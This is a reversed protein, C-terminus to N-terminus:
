CTNGNLFQGSACVSACSNGNASPSIYYGSQCQSCQNSSTCTLCFSSCPSCFLSGNVTQNSPFTAQPCNVLCSETYFYFTSQCSQCLSASSCTTCQSPCIICQLTNNSATHTYTGAPCDNVCVSSMLKLPYSCSTCTFPGITCTLCSTSCSVCINSSNSPVFPAPCASICETLHLYYGSVCSTCNTTTQICTLCLSYCSFCTSNIVVESSTCTGVCLKSSPQLYYPYQCSTCSNITLCTSCHGTNNSGSCNGCVQSPNIPYFGSPCDTICATNHLYYNAACSTCNVSSVCTSCEVPCLICTSTNTNAFTNSSCTQPTM